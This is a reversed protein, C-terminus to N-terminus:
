ALASSKGHTTLLYCGGYQTIKTVILQNTTSQNVYCFTLFLTKAAYMQKVGIIKVSHNPSSRRVFENPKSTSPRLIPHKKPVGTAPPYVSKVFLNIKM